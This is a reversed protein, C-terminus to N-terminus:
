LWCFSISKGLFLGNCRNESTKRIGHNYYFLSFVSLIAVAVIGAVFCKLLWIIVGKGKKM